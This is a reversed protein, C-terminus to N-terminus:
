DWRWVRVFSRWWSPLIRKDAVSSIVRYNEDEHVNGREWPIPHHGDMGNMISIPPKPTLASTSLGGSSSCSGCGSTGQYKSTFARVLKGAVYVCGGYAFRVLSDGTLSGIIFVDRAVQLDDLAKNRLTQGSVMPDIETRHENPTGELVESLLSDDLYRLSGRRGVAYVLGCVPRTFTTGDMLRFTVIVEQGQNADDVSLIEANPLGEYVEDWNRSRLFPMSTKQRNYRRQNMQPQAAFAARKMIRYIGAYEPYAQQHCGRLPSPRSESDWRFMHIIKQEPSTSIIADAASFGSGIVLLPVQPNHQLPVLPQLLPPPPLADSFIGSALVLNKCHIRHSRIYFGNETRAIGTLNQSSHFVHDIHVAEPYARLYDAFERRTPRSFAQLDKGTVKRYHEAYSYGPLSLMTAYSLTQIDWSRAVPDNTWQGGPQPANGFVLHPVANDPEYRWRLNTVCEGEEVDASPRVLTDLLVNVPLAQTSYSLRSAAFHETLSPVDADLLQPAAKLKSHLLHDPHPLDPAYVPIHGHLIYSLIMASPGNGIIITDINIDMSSPM